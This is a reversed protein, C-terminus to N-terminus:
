CEGSDLCVRLLGEVKKSIASCDAEMQLRIILPAFLANLFRTWRHMVCVLEGRCRRGRQCCHFRAHCLQEKWCVAVEERSKGALHSHFHPSPLPSISIWIAQNPMSNSKLSAAHVRHGDSISCVQTFTENDNLQARMHDLRGQLDAVTQSSFLTHAIIRSPVSKISIACQLDSGNRWM